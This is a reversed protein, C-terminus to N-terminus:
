CYWEIRAIWFCDVIRASFSGLSTFRVTQEDEDLDEFDVVVGFTPMEAVKQTNEDDGDVEM